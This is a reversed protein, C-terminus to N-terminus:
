SPLEIWHTDLHCFSDRNKVRHSLEAAKAPPVYGFTVVVFLLAVLLRSRGVM